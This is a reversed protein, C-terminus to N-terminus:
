KQSLASRMFAQFDKQLQILSPQHIYVMHGSEYYNVTINKKLKPPLFMHDLVYDTAFYPTALDYYGSVVWVKLYPNRTMSSRLTEAVNLFRNQVNSYNWPRARGT